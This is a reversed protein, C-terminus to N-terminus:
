TDAKLKTVLNIYDQMAAQKPSGKLGEWAKYKAKAVFDFPNAPAEKNVDGVTSQKYCAYLKLLDANGPKEPLTKSSAVAQEFLDNLEM